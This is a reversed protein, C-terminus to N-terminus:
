QGDFHVIEIMITWELWSSHHSIGRDGWAGKYLWEWIERYGQDPLVSGRGCKKSRIKGGLRWIMGPSLVWNKKFSASSFIWKNLNRGHDMLSWVRDWIHHKNTIPFAGMVSILINGMPNEPDFQRRCFIHPQGMKEERWRQNGSSM